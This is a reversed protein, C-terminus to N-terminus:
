KVMATDQTRHKQSSGYVLFYCLTGVVAFEAEISKNQKLISDLM